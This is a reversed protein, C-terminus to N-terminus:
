EVRARKGRRPQIRPPPRKRKGKSPVYDDEDDGEPDSLLPDEDQMPDGADPEDGAGDGVGSANGTVVEPEGEEPIEESAGAAIAAAKRAEAEAAAAAEAAEAARAKKAAATAARKEATKARAASRASHAQNAISTHFALRDAQLPKLKYLEAPLTRTLEVFNHIAGLNLVFHEDDDHKILHIDHTTEEREQRQKGIVSPRCGQTRCDHQVSCGFRIDSGKVVLFSRAGEIIEKGNPRRVIPWDFEPHRIDTCIFREVVVFSVKSAAVIEAVRGLVPREDADRVFVWGGLKVCDGSQAVVYLGNRWLSRPEPAGAGIWYEKAKTARWQIAPHTKAGLLRVFGPEPTSAAAWGLHRQLVADHQVLKRAEVGAQLWENRSASWWFGGSLLHKVCDMSAFKVAIDRSPAQNNGNISCMRFIANYGEQTETAFRVAPGYREVDEPLHALLHLKIKVIIRLSDVSDWADLVNAIATKLQAIYAPMNDIVPVWVWAGLDATAKVLRFQEPTCLDHVHFVLAQMITKFHKGILNNRYQMMYAARIPPINMASIDTSQLRIALLHRDEDSWQKTQLFHWVYRVVGLLITHLIEVPTDRAPDLGAIDLLPNMKDGPQADLWERVERSIDGASREPDQAKAAAVRDIIQEIWYQALKDKTGTEKQRNELANASKGDIAMGIQHELEARIGEATRVLGPEHAEHYTKATEKEKQPGGWQCKRCPKNATCGIHSAEDSQQPNDGDEDVVRLVFAAERKTQANFCVVPEVETTRITDRLAASFEATSANPSAAMYHVHFEQKLLQGPLATNQGLMMLFKNYQKSRNGSVDDIWVSVGVVYLDRNGSLARQPNPMPQLFPKSRETWALEPGHQALLDDFDLALDDAGIRLHEGTTDWVGNNRSVRLADSTLKGDRIIWTTPIVFQGNDLMAVENIWWRRQGNSFMPTLEDPTYEFLRDAQWRESTPRKGVEEPYLHLHPAVLPNAFDRAIGARIDNAYFINGLSSEIRTPQDGCEDHIKRQIKRLSKFSPVDRAGLQKLLHLIIAMQAGTFRCRGLNDAVDLLMVTRNPYPFCAPNDDVEICMDDDECDTLEQELEEDGDDGEGREDRALADGLIRQFEAKLDGATLESRKQEELQRQRIDRQALEDAVYRFDDM